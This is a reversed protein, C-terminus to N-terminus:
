KRVIGLPDQSSAKKFCVGSLNDDFMKHIAYKEIRPTPEVERKLLAYAVCDALQIFYSRSSDKFVPDEIIREVIM